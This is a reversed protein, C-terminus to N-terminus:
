KLAKELCKSLKWPATNFVYRVRRTEYSIANAPHFLEIDGVRKLFFEAASKGLLAESNDFYAVLDAKFQTDNSGSFLMRIKREYILDVDDLEALARCLINAFFSFVRMDAEKRENSESKPMLNKKFNPIQSIWYFIAERCDKLGHVAASTACEGILIIDFSKNNQLVSSLFDVVIKQPRYPLNKICRAVLKVATPNLEAGYALPIMAQQYWSDKFEQVKLYFEQFSQPDHDKSSAVVIIIESVDYCESISKSELSTLPVAACLYIIKQPGELDSFKDEFILGRVGPLSIEDIEIYPVAGPVRLVRKMMSFCNDVSQTLGYRELITYPDELKEFRGALTKTDWCCTKYIGEKEIAELNSAVTVSPITSTILLYGKTGHTACASRIDGLESEYVSKGGVAKHKCQVLYKTAEAKGLFSETSIEIILDKKRDPGRSPESLIKSGGEKLIDRCLFEFDEEDKLLSFDINM